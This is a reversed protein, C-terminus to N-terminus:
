WNLCLLSSLFRPPSLGVEKVEAGLAALQVLAAKVAEQVGHDVGEGMTEKIVAVRKGKLPKSPLADVDVLGAAFDEVPRKSSTADKADVGPRM